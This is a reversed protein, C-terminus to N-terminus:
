QSGFRLALESAAGTLSLTLRIFFPVDVFGVSEVVRRHVGSM